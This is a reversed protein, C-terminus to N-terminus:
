NDSQLIALLRLIELYLWVLTVTLGFAAYWAYKSPMGERIMRDAQDFDLLLNFAAVGIIVLSILIGLPGNGRIGTEIGFMGLLLSMVLLVLVGATAGVIMKTLRPTVKIAGTKYAILMAAFVGATGAVAQMAVGGGVWQTIVWTIAGLFAGEAVAYALILPPSIKRKFIVVMALVLGILMGPLAIALPSIALNPIAFAAVLAAVVVTGLTMATKTVVDDATIPRDSTTPPASYGGYGGYGISAGGGATPPPTDFGAYNGYGGRPLNRFAPNSTSRM